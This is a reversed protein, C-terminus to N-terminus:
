GHADSRDAGPVGFAADLDSLQRVVEAESWGLEDAMLHACVAAIDPGPHALHGLATRRLVVDTLSGAMEERVAHIVEAKLVPCEPGLRGALEPRDLALRIVGPCRTGYLGTLNALVDADLEAHGARAAEIAIAEVDAIGAGPLPRRETRCTPRARRLKRFVLDVAREASGRATTYKVGIVTVAGRVGDAAHDLIETVPKLDPRGNRGAVAPVLGQHVFTVDSEGLTLAPFTANAALRFEEVEAASLTAENTGAMRDAQSTGVLACGHWPVLTLMRGDPGPAALALESTPRRTVLNMTRVLPVPRAIGLAAMVRGAGPGAANLTLRARVDFDGGTLLDHVRMGAVAGKDLIATRAEVRNALAAGHEAAAIAFALTLRHPEVMQYDYWSAGGTLGHTNVGHFLRECAARSVLRGEPLHLEPVVDRNRDRGLFADLRFALRLALRGRPVSRYVPMLFPLPRLLHPAMRALARRERSSERARRLDASQLSRLGGHVTRQHNFSLGAGFDDREVLAVSLGRQAADYAIALGHIGGGVVLLDFTGEALRTLDRTM